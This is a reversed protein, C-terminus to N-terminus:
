SGLRTPAPSRALHRDLWPGIGSARDHRVEEVSGVAVVRGGEDGGGPGMDVIHDANAVLDLDHEVVIVTAGSRILDDLVGLLTAVDRPHLGITPEDFM